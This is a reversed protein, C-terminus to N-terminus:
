DIDFRVEKADIVFMFTRIEHRRRVYRGMFMVRGALGEPLGMVDLRLEGCVGSLRIDHSGPSPRM